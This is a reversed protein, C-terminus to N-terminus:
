TMCWTGKLLLIFFVVGGVVQMKFVQDEGAFTWIVTKTGSYTPDSVRCHRHGAPHSNVRGEDLQEDAGSAM